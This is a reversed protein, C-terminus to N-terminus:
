QLLSVLMQPRQNAQSLIAQAAQLMVNYTAFRTSERAVDTDQIRSRSIETNEAAVDLTRITSELRNQYAGLRSRTRSVQDIANNTITIAEQAGVSNRYNIKHRMTGGVFEVLGLTEANLKPIQVDMAMDHGPGIQLMIPGFNRIDMAMERLPGTNTATPAIVRDGFVHRDNRNAEPLHMVQISFRIEEGGTGRITVENGRSSVAWADTGPRAEGHRDPELMRTVNVVADSGTEISPAGAPFLLDVLESDGGIEIRQDSGALVTALILDGNTVTQLEIGALTLTQTFMDRFEQFSTNRDVEIVLSNVILTSRWTCDSGDAPLAPISPLPWTLGGTTVFNPDLGDMSAHEGVQVIDYEFFGPGANNSLFMPTVISRTLEYNGANMIFNERVRDAEGNLIRMGNFETRRSIDQIERTLQDVEVQMMVRNEGTYTDNAAQVALERMRQLLTHVENLAGEATQVMSTGHTANESARMLGGVQYTLKNAISLGAADERASNIRIGTSLRQMASQMGRDARRMSLNTFLAPINHSVVM